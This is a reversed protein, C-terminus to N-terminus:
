RQHQPSALEAALRQELRPSHQFHYGVDPIVLRSGERVFSVIHRSGVSPAPFGTEMTRLYEIREGALLSGKFPRIVTAGLEWTSYVGETRVKRVKTIELVVTIDTSAVNAVILEIPPGLDPESSCGFSIVSAVLWFWGLRHWTGFVNM